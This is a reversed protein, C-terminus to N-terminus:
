IDYPFDVAQEAEITESPRFDKLPKKKAEASTKKKQTQSESANSESSPETKEPTTTQTENQAVVVSDQISQNQYPLPQYSTGARVTWNEIGLSGLLGITIIALIKFGTFIKSVM